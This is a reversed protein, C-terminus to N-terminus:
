HGMCEDFCSRKSPFGDINCYTAVHVNINHRKDTVDVFINLEGHCGRQKVIVAELQLLCFIHM